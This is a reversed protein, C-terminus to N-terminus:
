TTTRRHCDDRGTGPTSLEVIIKEVEISRFNNKRIKVRPQEKKNERLPKSANYESSITNSDM